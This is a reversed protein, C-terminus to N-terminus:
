DQRLIHLKSRYEYKDVDLILKELGKVAIDRYETVNYKLGTIGPMKCGCTYITYALFAQQEADEVKHYLDDLLRIQNLAKHNDAGLYIMLMVIHADVFADDRGYDLAEKVIRECLRLSEYYDGNLLLLEAHVVLFAYLYFPNMSTAFVISQEIHKIGSKIKMTRKYLLALTFHTFVINSIFNYSKCISLAEKLIEHAEAFMGLETLLLAQSNLAHSLGDFDKLKRFTEKQKGIYVLALDFRNCEMYIEGLNAYSLAMFYIDDYEEAIRVMDEFTKIAGEIDGLHKQCIGVNGEANLRSILDGCREAYELAQQFNKMAKQVEGKANNLVGLSNHITALEEANKPDALKLALSLHHEASAFDSLKLHAKGILHTLSRLRNLDNHDLYQICLEYSKIANEYAGTQYHYLAQLHNIEYRWKDSGSLINSEIDKIQEAFADTEGLDYKLYALLIRIEQNKELSLKAKLVIPIIKLMISHAQRYLNKQRLNRAALLYHEVAKDYVEAHHMHRAIEYHLDSQPQNKVLIAMAEGAHYHLEKVKRKSITNYIAERILQHDFEYNDADRQVWIRLQKMRCFIRYVDEPSQVSGMRYVMELVQYTFSRGLVAATLVLDKQEEELEDYRSIITQHLTNPLELYLESLNLGDMLRYRRNKMFLLLQELFLPNGHATDIVQELVLNEVGISFERVRAIALQEFEKKSMKDLSLNLSNSAGIRVRQKMGIFNVRSATILLLTAGSSQELVSRLMRLFNPEIYQLNDISLLVPIHSAELLLLKGILDILDFDKKPVEESDSSPNLSTTYFHAIEEMFKEVHAILHRKASKSRLLEMKQLFLIRIMVDHDEPSFGFFQELFRIALNNLRESHNDCYLRFVSWMAYIDTDIVHQLFRTKGIGTVGMLNVVASKKDRVNRLLFANVQDIQDKRGIFEGFHKEASPLASRNGIKYALVPNLVGRLNVEGLQELLYDREVFRLTDMDTIIDGWNSYSLMRAALNVKTGIVTYESRQSSGILGCFSLGQVVSIRLNYQNDQLISIAFEVAQQASNEIALPAGFLLMLTLYSDKVDIKNFYVQKQQAYESVRAIVAGAIRMDLIQIFVTVVYRYEDRIVTQVDFEPFFQSNIKPDYTSVISGLRQPLSFALHKPLIFFVDTRGLESEHVFRTMEKRFAEDCVIDGKLSLDLGKNASAIPDGFFFWSSKISTTNIEYVVSGYSLSSCIETKYRESQYDIWDIDGVASVINYACFLIEELKCYEQPFIAVVGDGQFVSIFGGCRHINDIMITFLANLYEAISEAGSVDDEMASATLSTFDAVDLLLVYAQFSGSLEKSRYRDAIFCPVFNRV